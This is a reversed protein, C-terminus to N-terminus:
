DPRDFLKRLPGSTGDSSTPPPEVGDGLMTQARRRSVSDVPVDHRYLAIVNVITKSTRHATAALSACSAALAAQLAVDRWLEWRWAVGVFMTVVSIAWLATAVVVRPEYKKRM